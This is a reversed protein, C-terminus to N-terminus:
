FPWRWKWQSKIGVITGNTSLIYKVHRIAFVHNAKVTAYNTALVNYYNTKALISNAKLPFSYAMDCQIDLATAKWHYRVVQYLTSHTTWAEPTHVYEWAEDATAGVRLPSRHARSERYLLLGFGILLVFAAAYLFM